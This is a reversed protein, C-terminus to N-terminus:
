NSSLIDKPKMRVIGISALITAAFSILLAIGGLKAISEPTQKVNLKNIQSIASSSLNMGPISRGSPPQTSKSSSSDSEPGGQRNSTQASTQQSLLQNGVLNGVYNGAVTAIVLSALTVVFLETFFQGIIKLRSEGLSMLVGIEYRRERISLIVILTLIVAGALAVLIVINKSFSAVNNLPSLMQQYLQDSTQISFKETDIKSKAKKAFASLQAPDSLTYTASDVTDTEGKMSNATALNTYINNSPNSANNQLQSSTVSSSSKYIGVVKLTVTKEADDVTVKVTFSDGVKLDNAEALDSEIVAENNAFDETIGSGSTIKNTGSTFDSVNSTTNVGTITFDGSAMGGPGGSNNSTSSDSSSSSSSSSSSIPSINGKTATTTSTFLYSKVGSMNAIKEATALSIPTMEMKPPQSSSSSSSSSQAQKMMYERNVQLSVTAGAEKKANEVAKDAAAKITLGALVFILISSTVLTLLATRGKKAKTALWARKIFNM